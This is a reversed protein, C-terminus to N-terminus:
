LDQKSKQMLLEAKWQDWEVKLNVKAQITAIAVENAGKLQLKRLELQKQATEEEIKAVESFWEVITKPKTSSPWSPTAPKSSAAHPKTNKMKKEQKEKKVTLVAEQDREDGREEKGRESDGRESDRADMIEKESEAVDDVPVLEDSTPEDEGDGLLIDHEIASHSNGIGTPVINPRKSILSRMKLFWPTGAKIM